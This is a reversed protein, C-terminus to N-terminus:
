QLAEISKEGEEETRWESVLAQHRPMKVHMGYDITIRKGLVITTRVRDM